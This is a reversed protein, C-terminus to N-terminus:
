GNLTTVTESGAADAAALEEASPEDEGLLELRKHLVAQRYFCYPNNFRSQTHSYATWSCGGRCIDRYRCVACFGALQELKFDRNYAFAGPRTWIEQLSHERLNGELFVDKGHRASPLSLCGKVNGNSEIGIM